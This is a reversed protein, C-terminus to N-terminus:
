FDISGQVIGDIADVPTVLSFTFALIIGMWFMLDNGMWSMTQM